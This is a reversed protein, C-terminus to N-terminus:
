NPVDYHRGIRDPGGEEVVSLSPPAMSCVRGSLAQGRPSKTANRSPSLCGPSRRGIKSPRMAFGPESSFCGSVSQACSYAAELVPRSAMTRIAKM